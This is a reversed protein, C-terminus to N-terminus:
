TGPAGSMPDRHSGFVNSVSTHDRHYGVGNPVSVYDRHILIHISGVFKCESGMPIRYQYGIYHMNPRASQRSSNFHDRERCAVCAHNEDLLAMGFQRVITTRANRTAFSRMGCSVIRRCASHYDGDHAVSMPDRHSGFVNSVSTHDRHSGIRCGM